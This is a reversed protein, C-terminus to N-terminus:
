TTIGTQNSIESPRLYIYGMLLRASVLFTANKTNIVFLGNMKSRLFPIQQQQLISIISIIISKQLYDSSLYSFFTVSGCIDTVQFDDEAELGEYLM